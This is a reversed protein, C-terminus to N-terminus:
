KASEGAAVPAVIPQIRVVEHPTTGRLFHIRYHAGSQLFGAFGVLDQTLRCSLRENQADKEDEPQTLGFVDKLAAKAAPTEDVFQFRQKDASLEVLVGEAVSLESSAMMGRRDAFGGIAATTALLGLAAIVLGISLLRIQENM